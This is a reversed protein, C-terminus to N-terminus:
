TSGSPQRKRIVVELPAREWALWARHNPWKEIGPLAEVDFEFFLRCLILRIEAEALRYDDSRGEFTKLLPSM